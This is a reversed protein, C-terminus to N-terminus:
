AGATMQVAHTLRIDSCPGITITASRGAPSRTAANDAAPAKGIISVLQVSAGADKTEILGHATMMASGPGGALSALARM